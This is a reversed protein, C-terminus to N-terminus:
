RRLILILAVLVAILLIALVVLGTVLLRDSRPRATAVVAGPAPTVSPTTEDLDLGGTGTQNTTQQQSATDRVTLTRTEMYSTQRGDDDRYFIEVTVPYSGPNATSPVVFDYSLSRSEVRSGDRGRLIFRPETRDWDFTTQRVQAQLTTQDDTGLNEVVFSVRVQEGRNVVSPSLTISNIEVDGRPLRFEVDFSYEVRHEANNDDIGIIEVDFRVFDGDEIYRRDIDMSFCFERRDGSRIDRDMRSDRPEFDANDSEVYVDVQMERNRDRRDFRNEVEICFRASSDPSIRELERSNLAFSQDDIFFNATTRMMLKAFMNVNRTVTGNTSQVAITGVLEGQSLSRDDARGRDDADGLANVNRPIVSTVTITESQNALIVFSTQSFNFTTGQSLESSYRSSPTFGINTVNISDNGTNSITFTTSRIEIQDETNRAGPNSRDIPDSVTGFNIDSVTITASAFMAGFVMMIVFLILKGKM